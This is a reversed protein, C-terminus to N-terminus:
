RALRDGVAEWVAPCVSGSSTFSAVKRGERGQAVGRVDGAGVEAVGEPEPCVGQGREVGLAGVGFSLAQEEIPRQDVGVGEAVGVGLTVCVGAGRDVHQALQHVVFGDGHGLAVVRDGELPLAFGYGLEACMDEVLVAV